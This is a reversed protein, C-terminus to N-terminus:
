VCVEGIKRKLTQLNQESVEYTEPSETHKGRVTLRDNHIMPSQTILPSVAGFTVRDSKAAVGEFHASRQQLLIDHREAVQAQCQGKARAQAKVSAIRGLRHEKARRAREESLSLWDFREVPAKGGRGLSVLKPAGVGGCKGMEHLVGSGWSEGQQAVELVHKVKSKHLVIGHNEPCNFLRKYQCPVASSGAASPAM